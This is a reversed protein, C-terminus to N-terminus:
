KAKEEALVLTKRRKIVKKDYRSSPKDEWYTFLRHVELRNLKCVAEYNEAPCDNCGGSFTEYECM